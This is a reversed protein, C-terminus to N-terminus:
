EYQSILREYVTVLNKAEDDIDYGYLQCATREYNLWKIIENVWVTCNSIQIFRVMETCKVENTIRDSLLCPLGNAQAEIAVVPLGEYLSPLVFVDMCQLYDSIRNSSGIWKINNFVGKKIAYKKIEDVKNGDGILVLLSNPVKEILEVLVDILFKHNKQKEFRGIHGIVFSTGFGFEERLKKRKEIDFAYKKAEIANPIITVKHNKNALHKVARKSCSFIQNSFYVGLYILFRNRIGRLLYDSCKSNHSHIIRVKYGLKKGIRLCFFAEHPIHCHIIQYSNCVVRNFEREYNFLTSLQYNPLIYIKAGLETLKQNCDNDVEEHVLFDFQIKNKDIAFYYNLVVSSVGSNINIKDLVHLVRIAEM